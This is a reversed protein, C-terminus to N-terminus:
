PALCVRNRGTRKAEYLAEDARNILHRYDPHGNHMAVGISITVRITKGEALSIDAAEVRARIKDAVAMADAETVENLVALFEEGGYRFYFDSARGHSILLSAVSQLVRDGIEHGHDDNVRKFHDVDLMLVGFANEHRRALLLARRMITPLFRRNYLQTLVDRGAELDSLRDFMANVLFRCEELEALFERLSQAAGALRPQGLAQVQDVAILPLLTHDLRDIHQAVGGIERAEEFMLPAKHQMWLGFASSRLRPLHGVPAGTALARLVSNEWDTLAALQRHRELAAHQGATVMRFMEDTRAGQEHSHVYASSMEAFALDMLSSVYQAAVLLDHRALESQVLLDFLRVKLLRMGRSVLHVPIEARAHVEGVQRQLAAMAAHQRHNGGFLTDMWRQISAHLRTHVADHSLFSSAESDAMMTTYFVTAMAERHASVLAGVAELIHPPTGELVTRWDADEVAAAVPAPQGPPDSRESSGVSQVPHPLNSM